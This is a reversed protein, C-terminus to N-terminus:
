AESCTAFLKEVGLVQLYDYYCAITALIFSSSLLALFQLWEYNTIIPAGCVIWFGSFCDPLCLILIRIAGSQQCVFTSGLFLGYFSHRYLPIKVWAVRILGMHQSLHKLM